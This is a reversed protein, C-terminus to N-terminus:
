DENVGDKPALVSKMSNQFRTSLKSKGNLLEATLDYRIAEILEPSMEWDKFVKKNHRYDSVSDILLVWEKVTLKSDVFTEPTIKKIIEPYHWVVQRVFTKNMLSRTNNLFIPVYKAGNYSIMNIWFRETTTIASFDTIFQDIFDPRHTTLKELRASTLKVAEGVNEVVWEPYRLFIDEREHKGLKQFLHPRIHAKFDTILLSYYEDASVSDLDDDSLIIKSTLKKNKSRLLVQLKEAGTFATVDFVSDFLSFHSSLLDIKDTISLRSLDFLDPSKAFLKILDLTRALIHTASDTKSKM